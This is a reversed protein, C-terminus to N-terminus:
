KTEKGFINDWEEPLIGTMLFERQNPSLYPMAKQILTGNEWAALDALDLEMEMTNTKRSISSFRKIRVLEKM